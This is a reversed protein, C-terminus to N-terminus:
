CDEVTKERDQDMANIKNVRRAHRGGEFGAELFARAIEVALGSGVVRAGICLVNADNHRRAMMASYPESCAAARIGQIKNAAIAMGVGTGCILIAKSFRGSSVAEGVLRAIDPYDVSEASYVGQDNLSYGQEALAQILAEKLAFGAHDSGVAVPIRASADENTM